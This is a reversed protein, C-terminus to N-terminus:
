HLKGENARSAAEEEEKMRIREAREIEVPTVVILSLPHDKRRVNWGDLVNNRWDHGEGYVVVVLPHKGEAALELLVNERDDITCTGPRGTKQIEKGALENARFTEAAHLNLKGEEFMRLAANHKLLEDQEDALVKELASLGTRRDRAEADMTQEPPSAKQEEHLLKRVERGRVLILLKEKCVSELYVGRLGRRKVLYELIRYIDTQARFIADRLKPEHSEVPGTLHIQRVHVITQKAGPVEYKEIHATRPLDWVQPFNEFAEEAPTRIRSSLQRSPCICQDNASSERRLLVDSVASAAAAVYQFFVRRSVSPDPADRLVRSSQPREM